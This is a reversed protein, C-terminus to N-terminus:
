DYLDAASERVRHEPDTAEKKDEEEVIKRKEEPLLMEEYM